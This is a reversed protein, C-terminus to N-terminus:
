RGWPGQQGPSGRLAIAAGLSPGDLQIWGFPAARASHPHARCGCDVGRFRGVPTSFLQESRAVGARHPETWRRRATACSPAASPRDPATQWRCRPSRQVHRHTIRWRQTTAGVTSARRTARAASPMRPRPTASISPRMRSPAWPRAASSTRETMWSRLPIRTVPRRMGRAARRPFRLMPAPPM